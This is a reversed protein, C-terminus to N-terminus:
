APSFRAPNLGTRRCRRNQIGATGNGAELVDSGPVAAAEHGHSCLTATRRLCVFFFTASIM